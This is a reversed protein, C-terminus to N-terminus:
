TAKSFAGSLNLQTCFTHIHLLASFLLVNEYVEIIAELQAHAPVNNIILKPKDIEQASCESILEKIWENCNDAKFFGRQTTFLLVKSDSM